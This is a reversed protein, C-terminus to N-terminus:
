SLRRYILKWVDSEEPPRQLSHLTIDQVFFGHLLKLFAQDSAFTERTDWEGYDQRVYQNGDWTIRSGGEKHATFFMAKGNKLAELIAAQYAAADTLGSEFALAAEALERYRAAICGETGPAPGSKLQRTWFGFWREADKRLYGHHEPAFRAWSSHVRFTYCNETALAADFLLGSSCELSNWQTTARYSLTKGDFEPRFVSVMMREFYVQMQEPTRADRFQFAHDSQTENGASPTDMHGVRDHAM